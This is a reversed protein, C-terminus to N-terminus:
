LRQADEPVLLRNSSGLGRMVKPRWKMASKDTPPATDAYLSVAHQNGPINAGMFWSNANDLPSPIGLEEAHEAWADDTGETFVISALNEERLHAACSEMWEPITETCPTCNRVAANAGVFLNPFRATQLRLCGLPIAAEKDQFM